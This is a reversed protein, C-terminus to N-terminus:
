WEITKVTKSGSDDPALITPRIAGYAIEPLILILDSSDTDFVTLVVSLPLQYNLSEFPTIIPYFTSIGIKIKYTFTKMM